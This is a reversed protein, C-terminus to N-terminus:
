QPVNEQRTQWRRRLQAANGPMEYVTRLMDETLNLAARLDQPFPEEVEHAASNGMLRTLHLFTAQPKTIVDLEVLQDIRKELNSATCGKEACIAEVLARIGMMALVNAESNFAILTDSYIRLVKEPLPHVM